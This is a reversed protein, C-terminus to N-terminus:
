RLIDQSEVLRRYLGGQALLSEHTGREVIRGADMVLIADASRITSLRHAIIVLTWQGRMENMSRQIAQESESDLHSTPEDMVLLDAQALVARAIALRQKQGGSLRVGRDGLETDLGKDLAAVFAEAHAISLARAIAQDDAQDSAVRLNARVSDNFFFPDQSVVAVRRRWARVDIPALDAGDLTIRGRTPEYLRALLNALTTKGAGSPGVVAVVQGKKLEFDIGRLTEPLHPEYQFHIGEFRLAERMPPCPLGPPAPQSAPAAMFAALERCGPLLTLAVSMQHSIAVAPLALRLLILMFLLVRPLATALEDGHLVSALALMAAVVIAVLTLLVPGVASILLATAESTRLYERMRGGYAQGAWEERGLQRILAAGGLAEFGFSNMAELARDRRRNLASLRRELTGRTALVLLGLLTVALLTLTPSLAVMLVGYVTLVGVHSLCLAAAQVLMATYLTYTAQLQHMEGLRRRHVERLDMTMLRDFVVRRLAADLRLPLSRGAWEALLLLVGRAAALAILLWAVRRVREPLEYGSLWQAMAGLGPVGRMSAGADTSLLPAALGVGLGETLAGLTSGGLIAALM